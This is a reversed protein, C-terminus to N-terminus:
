AEDGRLETTQAPRESWERAAKRDQREKEMASNRYGQQIHRHWPDYGEDCPGLIEFDLEWQGNEIEAKVVRGLEVVVRNYPLVPVVSGVAFGLQEISPLNGNDDPRCWVNSHMMLRGDDRKWTAQGM